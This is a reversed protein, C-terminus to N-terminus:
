ERKIMRGDALTLANKILLDFDFMGPLLHLKHKIAERLIEYGEVMERVKEQLEGITCDLGKAPDDEHLWGEQRMKNALSDIKIKAWGEQRLLSLVDSYRIYEGNSTEKIPIENLGANYWLDYRKIKAIKEEIM